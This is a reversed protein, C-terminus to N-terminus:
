SGLPKDRWAIQCRNGAPDNFFATRFEPSDIETDSEFTFGKEAIRARTADYDDVLFATHCVYRPNPASTGPPREIIELVGGSGDALFYGRVPAKSNDVLVTMGFTETYFTRLAELDSTFLAFHEIRAM